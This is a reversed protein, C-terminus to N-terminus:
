KIEEYEFEVFVNVQFWAGSKGIEESRPSRFWAGGATTVGEYAGQITSSIVDSRKLGDGFPTFVQFILLGSRDWRKVGAHNALSGQGGGLHTMSSRVWSSGEEQPPEADTDQDLIVPRISADISAVATALIAMLQDRAEERTMPM